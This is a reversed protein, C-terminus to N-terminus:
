RFLQAETLIESLFNRAHTESFIDSRKEQSLLALEDFTFTKEKFLKLCATLHSLIDILVNTELRMLNECTTFQQKFLEDMESSSSKWGLIELVKKDLALLDDPDAGFKTMCNIVTTAHDLLETFKSPDHILLDALDSFIFHGSELLSKVRWSDLGQFLQLVQGSKRVYRVVEGFVVLGKNMLDSIMSLQMANRLLQQMEAASLIRIHSLKAGCNSMLDVLSHTDASIVEQVDSALSDFEEESLYDKLEQLTAVRPTVAPVTLRPASPLTPLEKALVSAAENVADLPADDPLQPASIFSFKWQQIGPPLNFAWCNRSRDFYMAYAIQGAGMLPDTGTVYLAFGENVKETSTVEFQKAAAETYTAPKFDANPYYPRTATAFGDEGSPDRMISYRQLVSRKNKVELRAILNKIISPTSVINTASLISIMDVFTNFDDFMPHEAQLARHWNVIGKCFRDTFYGSLVDLGLRKGDYMLFSALRYPSSFSLHNPDHSDRIEEWLSSEEETLPNKYRARTDVQASLIDSITLHCVKQQQTARDIEHYETNIYGRDIAYFLLGANQVAHSSIGHLTFQGTNCEMVLDGNAVMQNAIVRAIYGIWKVAQAGAGHKRYLLLLFEKLPSHEKTRKTSPDQKFYRSNIRPIPSMLGDILLNLKKM